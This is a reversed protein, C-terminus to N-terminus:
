PKPKDNHRVFDAPIEPALSEMGKPVPMASIVKAGMYGNSKKYQVVNVLATLGILSEPDAKDSKAIEPAFGTIFKRLDGKENWTKNAWFSVYRPAMKGKYEMEESTMFSVCVSTLQKRTDIDYGGADNKYKNEKGYNPNDKTLEFVDVCRAPYSGEPHAEFGKRENSENTWM